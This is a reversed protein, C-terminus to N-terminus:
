KEGEKNFYYEEILNQNKNLWSMLSSKRVRVKEEGTGRDTYGVPITRLDTWFLEEAGKFLDKM